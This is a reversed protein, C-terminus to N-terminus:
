VRFDPAVNENENQNKHKLYLPDVNFADVLHSRDRIWMASCDFSVLMWKHPNFNFSDSFEVGNLIHRYEPCIFASGAYAADIHMWINEKQGIFM